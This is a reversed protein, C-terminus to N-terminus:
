KEKTKMNALKTIEIKIRRAMKALSYISYFCKIFSGLERIVEKKINFNNIGNFFSKIIGNLFIM